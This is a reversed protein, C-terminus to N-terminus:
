IQRGKQLRKRKNKSLLGAAEMKQLALGPTPMKQRNPPGGDGLPWLPFGHWPHGEHAKQFLAIQQGRTGLVLVHGDADRRLGYLDGTEDSLDHLDAEDFIQFEDAESLDPSWRAADPAGRGHHKQHFCYRLGRRRTVEPHPPCADEGTPM